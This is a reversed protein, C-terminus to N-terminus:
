WEEEMGLLLTEALLKREEIFTYPINTSTPRRFAPISIRGNTKQFQNPVIKFFIRLLFM